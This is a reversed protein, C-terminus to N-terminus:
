ARRKDVDARLQPCSPFMGSSGQGPLGVDDRGGKPAEQEGHAGRLVRTASSHGFGGFLFPNSSTDKATEYSGVHADHHEAFGDTLDPNVSRLWFTERPSACMLLLLWAAQTDGM